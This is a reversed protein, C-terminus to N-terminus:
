NGATEYEQKLDNMKNAVLLPVTFSLFHEEGAHIKVLKNSQRPKRVLCIQKTIFKEM